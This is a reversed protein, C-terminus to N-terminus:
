RVEEIVAVAFLAASLLYIIIAPFLYGAQNVILWFGISLILFGGWFLAKFWDINNNNKKKM